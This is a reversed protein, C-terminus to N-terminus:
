CVKVSELASHNAPLADDLEPVNIVNDLLPVQAFLEHIDSLEWLEDHLEGCDIINSIM